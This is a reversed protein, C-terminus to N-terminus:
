ASFSTEPERSGRKMVDDIVNDSEDYFIDHPRGRLGPSTESTTAAWLGMM